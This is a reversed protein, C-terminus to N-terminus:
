STKEMTILRHAFEAFIEVLQRAAPVNFVSLPLRADHSKKVVARHPVPPTWLLEGLQATMDALIAQDASERGAYDNAIAATVHVHPFSRRMKGVKSILQSLGNLGLAAVSTVAIIDDSAVMALTTLDTDGYGCDIFIYDYPLPADRDDLLDRLQWFQEPSGVRLKGDASAPILDIGAFAARSEEDLGSDPNDLEIIVEDISNKGALLTSVSPDTETLQRGTLLLTAGAQTDADIVLIRKTPKNQRLQGIVAVALNIVVTTKGVGGKYLAFAFKRPM